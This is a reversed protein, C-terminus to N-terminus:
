ALACLSCRVYAADKVTNRSRCSSKANKASRKSTVLQTSTTIASTLSLLTSSEAKSDNLTRLLYKELETEVNDDGGFKSTCFRNTSSRLHERTELIAEDPLNYFM